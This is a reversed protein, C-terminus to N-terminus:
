RTTMEFPAAFFVTQRDGQVQLDFRFGAGTAEAVLTRRDQEPVGALVPDAANAEAEDPFYVRTLAPKLLGRMFVLLELHPAQGGVSGPKVTVFSFRGDADTGCRGWGFDGRYTGSEDAQWTEIMADNVPMGDGDVVRGELVFAGETDASVIENQVSVCLGLAFYPGVTQSPTIPLTL